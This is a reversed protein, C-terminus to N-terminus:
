RAKLKCSDRTALLTVFGHTSPPASYDRLRLTWGARTLTVRRMGKVEGRRGEAWGDDRLGRVASNVPDAGAGSPLRLMVGVVCGDDDRNPEEVVSM